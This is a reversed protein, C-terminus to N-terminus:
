EIISNNIKWYNAEMRKEGTTQENVKWMNNGCITEVYQENLRRRNSGLKNEGSTWDIEASQESM